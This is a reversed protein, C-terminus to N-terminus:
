APKEDPVNTSPQADEQIVRSLVLILTIAIAFTVFGSWDHVKMGIKQGYVEGALMIVLLRAINGALALPVAFVVMLLRRWTTRFNMFGFITTLALLATLSRIGSCAAAVDYQFKGNASSLQTGDRIVDIGFVTVALGSSVYTVLMRLPFTLTEALTGIPVCFVFLFFPFFSKKLVQSGWTLGILGYLGLFLGVISLRAQQIMFGLVHAFLGIILLTIAPWWNRTLVRDFNKRKWWFLAIVVFPILMGHEDDPNQTYSYKMWSFLSPTDIYGLTSNGFFHFLLFWAGVLSFFLPKFPLAEWYFRIDELLSKTNENDTESSM